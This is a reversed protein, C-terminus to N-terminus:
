HLQRKDCHKRPLAKHRMSILFHLLFRFGQRSKIENYMTRCVQTVHVSSICAVTVVLVLQIKCYLFGVVVIFYLSRWLSEIPLLHIFCVQSLIPITTSYQLMVVAHTFPPPYVKGVLLFCKLPITLVLVFRMPCQCNIYM